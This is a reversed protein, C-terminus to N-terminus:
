QAKQRGAGDGAHLDDIGDPSGVPASEPQRSSVNAAVAPRVCRRCRGTQHADVHVALTVHLGLDAVRIGAHQQVHRGSQAPEEVQVGVRQAEATMQGLDGNRGGSEVRQRSNAHGAGPVAELQGHARHQALLHGHLAGRREGSPQHVCEAFLQRVMQAPRAEHARKREGCRDGSGIQGGDPTGARRAFASRRSASATEAPSSSRPGVASGPAVPACSVAMGPM